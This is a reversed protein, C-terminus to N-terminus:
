YINDALSSVQGESFLMAKYESLQANDNYAEPKGLFGTINKYIVVLSDNILDRLNDFVLQDPQDWQHYLKLINEQLYPLQFELIELFKLKDPTVTEKEIFVWSKLLM